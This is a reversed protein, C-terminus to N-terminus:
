VWQDFLEPCRVCGRAVAREVRGTKVLRALDRELPLMGAHKGSHMVSQLQETKGERILHSAAANITLVEAAVVQGEGRRSPLLQQSVVARLSDALQARVQGQQGGPYLDIIREIAAAAGRGHLSSLVLHGTEAATLALAATERDRMEGILIFDPDERLADRLGAAFSIVDQGVERQRLLSQGRHPTLDYEIPAELSICLAASNELLNRTLAALSTSKGAGTQGCFLLLGDRVSSLALVEEPLGLESLEPAGRKLVRLAACIGQQARYVNVRLRHTGQFTLALDVAQGARVRERRAEDPLLACVEFPPGEVTHLRGQVRFVPGQGETLHLDSAGAAVAAAIVRTLVPDLETGAAASALVAEPSAVLDHWERREREDDPGTGPSSSYEVSSARADARVVSISATGSDSLIGRIRVEFRAGDAAAYVSRSETAASSHVEHADGMEGCLARLM